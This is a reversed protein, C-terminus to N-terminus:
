IKLQINMQLRYPYPIFPDGNRVKGVTTISCKFPLFQLSTKSLNSTFLCLQSM